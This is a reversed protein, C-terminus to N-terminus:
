TEPAFTGFPGWGNAITTRPAVTAGGGGGGAAGLPRVAVAADLLWILRAHTSLALLSVLKLISRQWPAPHLLKACIPAAVASAVLKESVPNLALV